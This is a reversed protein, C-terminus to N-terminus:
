CHQNITYPSNDIWEIKARAAAQRRKGLYPMMRTLVRKVNAKGTVYLRYLIRGSKQKHQSIKNDVQFTEKLWIIVDEDCMGINLCANKKAICGEGDFLGGARAWRLEEEM